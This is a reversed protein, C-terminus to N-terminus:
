KKYYGAAKKGAMLGTAWALYLNYGGCKGDADILEGTVFMGPIKKLECMDLESPAVGGAMTQARNKDESAKVTFGLETINRLIADKDRGKLSGCPTEPAIACRSLIYASLAKNLFGCMASLISKGPDCGTVSSLIGKLEYSNVEPMMNLVLKVERGESLAISATRSIQFVPIGSVNDKTFQIEGEDSGQSNGNVFVSVRGAARVGALKKIDERVKLPCLAPLPKRFSIHQEKFLEALHPSPVDFGGSGFGSSVIVLDYREEAAGTKVIFSDRDPTISQVTKEYEIRIGYSVVRDLLASLVAGAQLSRPYLYGNKSVTIIGLSSYFEKLDQVNYSSLIGSLFEDGGEKSVYFCNKDTFENGLNCRGNGTALIKRGARGLSEYITISRPDAGNTVASIVAAMGSMGCGIVALKM